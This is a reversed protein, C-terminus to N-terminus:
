LTLYSESDAAAPRASRLFLRRGHDVFCGITIKPQMPKRIDHGALRTAASNSRWVITLPWYALHPGRPWPRM